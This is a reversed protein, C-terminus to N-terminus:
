DVQVCAIVADDDPDALVVPGIKAPEVIKALAGYGLVLEHAEVGAAELRAAFRELTLVGELEELLLGSTFLVIAGDRAADLILRPNGHWLLGSVVINTDAVVRMQLSALSVLPM